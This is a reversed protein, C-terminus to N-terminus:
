WSEPNFGGKGAFPLVDRHSCYSVGADPTEHWRCSKFRAVAPSVEPEQKAEPSSLPEATERDVTTESGTEAIDGSAPESIAQSGVTSSFIQDDHFDSM